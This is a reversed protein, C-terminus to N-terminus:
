TECSYHKQKNTQKLHPNSRPGQMHQDPARDSLFMGALVHTRVIKSNHLAMHSHETWIGNDAM